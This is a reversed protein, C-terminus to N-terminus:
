PSEIIQASGLPNATLITGGVVANNIQGAGIGQLTSDYVSGNIIASSNVGQYELSSFAFGADVSNVAAGLAQLESVAADRLVVMGVSIGIVLIVALLILEISLVAGTEDLWLRRLM